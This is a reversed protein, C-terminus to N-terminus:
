IKSNLVEDMSGFKEKECLSIYDEFCELVLAIVGGGDVYECDFCGCYREASAFVLRFLILGLSM